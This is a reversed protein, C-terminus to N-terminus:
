VSELLLQAQRKEDATLAGHCVRNTKALWYMQDWAHYVRRVGVPIREAQGQFKMVMFLWPKGDSVFHVVAPEDRSQMRSLTRFQEHSAAAVNMIWPLCGAEPDDWAGYFWEDFFNNLLCQDGGEATGNVRNWALLQEFRSKSPKIVM